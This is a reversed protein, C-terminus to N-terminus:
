LQKWLSNIRINQHHAKRSTKKFNKKKFNEQETETGYKKITLSRCLIRHRSTRRSSKSSLQNVGFDVFDSKIQCLQGNTKVWEVLNERFFLKQRQPPLRTHRASRRGGSRVTAALSALPSRLSARGDHLSSWARGVRRLLVFVTKGAFIRNTM